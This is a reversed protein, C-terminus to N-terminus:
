CINFPLIYAWNFVQGTMIITHSLPFWDTQFHTSKEEGYLRCLVSVLMEYPMKLKRTPVLKQGQKLTEDEEVWWPKMEKM